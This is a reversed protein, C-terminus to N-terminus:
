GQKERCPECVPINHAHLWKVEEDLAEERTDYPGLVPGEVPLMDAWWKDPLVPEEKNDWLWQAAKDSLENTPEVHSARQTVPDGLAKTIKDVIPSYVGRVTGDPSIIIEERKTAM